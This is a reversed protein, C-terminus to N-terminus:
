DIADRIEIKEKNYAYTRLKRVKFLGVQGATSPMIPLSPHEPHVILGGEKPVEIIQPLPMEVTQRDVVLTETRGFPPAYVTGCITHSNGTEGKMSIETEKTKKYGQPLEEIEELIVDGQRYVKLKSM